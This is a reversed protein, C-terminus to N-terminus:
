GLLLLQTVPAFTRRHHRTPGQRSLAAMHEATGYGMNTHWSFGPYRRALRCMLGDRLTKAVIGAAAVSYCLADGDVLALHPHGLEPMPLGDLLITVSAPALAPLLRNLARRMALATAVRINLRDIETV